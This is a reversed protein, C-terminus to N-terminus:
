YVLGLGSEDRVHGSLSEINPAIEYPPQQEFLLTRGDPTVVVRGFAEVNLVDDLTLGRANAVDCAAGSLWVLLALIRLRPVCHRLLDAAGAFSM